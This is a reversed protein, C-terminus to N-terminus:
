DNVIGGRVCCFFFFFVYTVGCGGVKFEPEFINVWGGVKFEPELINCGSNQISNECISFIWNLIRTKESIRTKELVEAKKKKVINVRWIM